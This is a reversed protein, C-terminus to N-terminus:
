QAVQPLSEAAKAVVVDKSPAFMVSRDLYARLLSLCRERQSPWPDLLLANRAMCYRGWRLLTDQTEEIGRPLAPRNPIAERAKLIVDELADPRASVHRVSRETAIRRAEEFFEAIEASTFGAGLMLKFTAAGERMAEAMEVCRPHHAGAEEPFAPRAQRSSRRHFDMNM